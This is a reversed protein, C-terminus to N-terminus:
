IKIDSSVIKYETWRKGLDVQTFYEQFVQFIFSFPFKRSHEKSNASYSRTIYEALIRNLKWNLFTTHKQYNSISDHQHVCEVLMDLIVSTKLKVFLRESNLDRFNESFPNLKTKLEPRLKVSSSKFDVM